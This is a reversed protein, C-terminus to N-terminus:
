TCRQQERRCWALALRCSPRSDGGRMVGGATRSAGPRRTRAHRRQTIYRSGRPVHRGKRVALVHRMVNERTIKSMEVGVDRRQNPEDEAFLAPNRKCGSLIPVYCSAFCPLRV